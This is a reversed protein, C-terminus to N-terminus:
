NEVVSTKLIDGGVLRADNIIVGNVVVVLFVDVVIGKAVVVLIVDVIFSNAVVVLFGVVVIGNAVYIQLHNAIVVLFAVVVIDNAIGALYSWCWHEKEGKVLVTLQTSISSQYIVSGNPFLQKSNCRLGLNHYSETTSSTLSFQSM